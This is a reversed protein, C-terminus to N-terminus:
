VVFPEVGVVADVWYVVAIGSEVCVVIRAMATPALPVLAIVVPVYVKLKGAAATGVNEGYGPVYV